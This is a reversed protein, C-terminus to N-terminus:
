KSKWVLCTSDSLSDWLENFASLIHAPNNVEQIIHHKKGISNISTGISWAKTKQFDEKNPFILFRDHFNYGKDSHAIRFEINIGCNNNNDSSRLFNTQEIKWEDIKNSQRNELSTNKFVLSSSIAKMEADCHRCFYLTKKIDSATLYPDWLYTGNLGYQDILKRMDALAIQHEDCNKAYQKFSLNKELVEKEQSFTRKSIQSIYNENKQIGISIPHNSFIDIRYKKEDIMFNRVEPSAIGMNMNISRIFSANSYYLILKHHKDTLYSQISSSSNGISILITDAEKLNEFGFGLIGEKEKVSCFSFFALDNIKLKMDQAIYYKIQLEKDDSFSCIRLFISNIPFQIIVNGIRDPVREIQIPLYKSVIHSVKQLFTVNQFFYSYSLKNEDFGEIVYSGSHFNNKLLSNLPYSSNSNSPVYQKPIFNLKSTRLEKGSVEWKKISSAQDQEILFKHFAENFIHKDRWYRKIGLKLKSSIKEPKPTLYQPPQRFYTQDLTEAVCISFFNKAEGSADMLFIETIEFGNYKGTIGEEALLSFDNKIQESHWRM